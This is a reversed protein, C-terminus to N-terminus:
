CHESPLLFGLRMIFSFEDRAGISSYLTRRYFGHEPATNYKLVLAIDEVVSGSDIYMSNSRM